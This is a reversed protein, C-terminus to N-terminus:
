ALALLRRLADDLRRMTGTSLHGAQGILEDRRV